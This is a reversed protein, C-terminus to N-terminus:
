RYRVTFEQTRFVVAGWDWGFMCHAKRLHPFGEMAEHSGGTYVKANEEKTHQQRPTSFLRYNM